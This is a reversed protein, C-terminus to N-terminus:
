YDNNIRKLLVLLSDIKIDYANMQDDPRTVKRIIANNDYLMRKSVKYGNIELVLDTEEKNYVDKGASIVYETNSKIQSTLSDVSATVAAVNKITANLKSNQNCHQLSIVLLLFIIVMVGYKNLWKLLDVM